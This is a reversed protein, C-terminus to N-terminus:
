IVVEFRVRKRELNQRGKNSFKHEPNEISVYEPYGRKNKRKYVKIVIYKEM